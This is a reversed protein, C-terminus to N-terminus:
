AEPYSLKLPVFVGHDFGRTAEEKSAIGADSLLSRVRAALTPDGPAPWQLQYTHAPFGSYDYLLPPATSTLVTPEDAEWHASIVLLAKPTAPLSADISKLWEAMRLWTDRPGMTWEMFFCPGGGHPIYLTPMRTSHAM